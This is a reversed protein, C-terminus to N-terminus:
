GIEKGCLIILKWAIWNIKEEPLLQFDGRDFFSFNKVGCFNKVGEITTHIDLLWISIKRKITTICWYFFPTFFKQNPYFVKEDWLICKSSKEPDFILASAHFNTRMSLKWNQLFKRISYSINEFPGNSFM